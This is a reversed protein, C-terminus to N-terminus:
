VLSYTELARNNQDVGHAFPTLLKGDMFEDFLERGPKV